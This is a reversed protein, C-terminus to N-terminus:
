RAVRWAGVCTPVFRILWIGFASALLVASIILSAPPAGVQAAVVRVVTAVQACVLLGLGARGLRMPLGGHGRVVRMSFALLLTGLGGVLLAHLAASRTAGAVTLMWAVVFWGVGVHLAAIMPTKSAPWPRWGAWQRVTLLILALATWQPVPALLGFWSCALFPGLFWSRRVGDYNPTVRSSFFPLVRDLVALAVPVLFAHVGLDIGRPSRAGFVHLLAGVLGGAVAVPIAATSADWRRRLSPIAVRGLWYMLSFWPLAVGAAVLWGPLGAGVLLLLASLVQACLQLVLHRGTPLPADNQKAYATLLFGQVGSGLVGWVMFAGHDAPALGVPVGALQSGWAVLGVVALLAATPFFVQWSQLTKM